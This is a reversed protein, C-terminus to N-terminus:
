VPPLQVVPYMPNLAFLQSFEIKWDKWNVPLQEV